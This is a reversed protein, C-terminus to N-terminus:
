AGSAPAAPRCSCRAILLPLALLLLGSLSTLPDSGTAPLAPEGAATRPPAGASDAIGIGDGSSRAAPRLPLSVAAQYVEVDSAGEGQQGALALLVRVGGPASAIDQEPGLPGPDSNGDAIRSELFPSALPLTGTARGNRDVTTLSPLVRTGQPSSFADDYAIAAGGGPLVSVAALEAGLKPTTLASAHWTAGGDQSQVLHIGGTNADTFVTAVDGSNGTAVDPLCCGATQDISLAAHYVGLPVPGTFTLGDDTSRYANIDETLPGGALYAAVAPATVDATVVVLGKPSAAIGGTLVAAGPTAKDITVPPNFTEGGDTSRSVSVSGGFVPPLGQSGVSAAVFHESAVLVHSPHAAEIAVQARQSGDSAAPFLDQAPGPELSAGASRNVYVHAVDHGMQAGTGTSQWSSTAFAAGGPAVAVFPDVVYGPQGSCTSVGPLPASRWTRGGDTSRGLWEEAGQGTEWTAVENNSSAPDVAIQGTTAGVKPCTSTRVPPVSVRTLTIDPQGPATGASAPLSPLSASLGLSVFVWLCRGRRSAIRLLRQRPPTM